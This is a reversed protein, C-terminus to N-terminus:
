ALDLVNFGGVVLSFLLGCTAQVLIAGLIGPDQVWPLLQVWLFGAEEDEEM